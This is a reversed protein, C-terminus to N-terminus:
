RNAARKQSTMLIYRRRPLHRSRGRTQKQRSAEKLTAACWGSEFVGPKLGVPPGGELADSEPRGRYPGTNGNAGNAAATVGNHQTHQPASSGNEADPVLEVEVDDDRAWNSCATMLHRSHTDAHHQM